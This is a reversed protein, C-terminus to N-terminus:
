KAASIKGLFKAPEKDFDKRCDECCLKIEQGAHVFVYPKGHDDLKEGSVLCTNLPYSKASSAAAASSHGHHDSASQCGVFAVAGLTLFASTLLLLRLNKM